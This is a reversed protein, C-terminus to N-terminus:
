FLKWTWRDSDKILDVELHYTSMSGSNSAGGNGQNYYDWATQPDIPNPLWMLRTIYLDVNPGGVLYFTPRPDSSSLSTPDISTSQSNLQQSVVLKGNLYCDAYTSSVSVTVYVWSQIPLNDTISIDQMTTGSPTGIKVSTTLTPTTDDMTFTCIKKATGTAPKVGYYLFEGIEASFTNIYMWFGITYKASYPTTISNPAITQPVNKDTIAGLYTNSMLSPAATYIRYIYYCLFVVVVGLIIILWNM